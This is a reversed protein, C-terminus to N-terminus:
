AKNWGIGWRHQEYIGIKGEDKKLSNEVAADVFDKL